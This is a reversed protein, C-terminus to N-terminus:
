QKKSESPLFPIVERVEKGKEGARIIMLLLFRCYFGAQTSHTWNMKPMKRM